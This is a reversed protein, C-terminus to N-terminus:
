SGDSVGAVGERARFMMIGIDDLSTSLGTAEVNNLIPSTVDTELTENPGGSIVWVYIDDGGASEGSYFAKTYVLYNRGWPDNFVQPLYPGNWNVNATKYGDPTGDPNDLTLHNVLADTITGTWTTAGGNGGEGIGGGEDPDLVNGAGLGSTPVPDFLTFNAGTNGSRLVEVNAPGDADRTPWVGTDRFFAGLAGQIGDVDLKARAIRANEIQDIAVPVVVAALTGTIAVVAAVEPLTFGKRDKLGAFFSKARELLKM